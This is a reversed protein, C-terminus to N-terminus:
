KKKLPADAFTVQNEDLRRIPKGLLNSLTEAVDVDPYLDQRNIEITDDPAFQCAHALKDFLEEREATQPPSRHDIAAVFFGGGALGVPACVWLAQSIWRAGSYARRHTTLLFIRM